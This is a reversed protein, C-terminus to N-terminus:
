LIEEMGIDGSEIMLDLIVTVVFLWDAINSDFYNGIAKLILASRDRNTKAAIINQQDTLTIIKKSVLRSGLISFNLNSLKNYNERFVKSANRPPAGM